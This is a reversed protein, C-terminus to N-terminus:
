VASSRYMCATRPEHRANAAISRSRALQRGSARAGGPLKPVTTPPHRTTTIGV